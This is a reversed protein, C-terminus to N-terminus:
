FYLKSLQVLHHILKFFWNLQQNLLLRLPSLFWLLFDQLQLQQLFSLCMFHHEQPLNQSLFMIKQIYTPCVWLALPAAPSLGECATRHPKNSAGRKQKWSSWSNKISAGLSSKTRTRFSKTSASASVNAWRMLVLRAQPSLCKIALVSIISTPITRKLERRFGPGKNQAWIQQNCESLSRAETSPWM